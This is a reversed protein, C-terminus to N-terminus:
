FDLTYDNGYDKPLMGGVDRLYKRLATESTHRTIPMLKLIAERENMGQKLFSHFLDLAATHRFSYIGYNDGYGFHKKVKKFRNGFHDVKSKEKHATWIEVKGTNTFINAKSPLNSINLEQLFNSIPEIIKVIAKTDTKTEVTFYKERLNFDEVKLRIIERERLFAFVVFQIFHYMQKDHQLLYDKLEKVEYGTFPTNKIPKSKSTEIDLLLNKSILKDRVLKGFLGSLCRKYNDQSTKGVGRGGLKEPAILNNMFTIIHVEELDRIDKSDIKNLGCWELFVNKRVRYDDATSEKWTGLKNNFAYELAERVTYKKQEFAKEPKIGEKNFPNYGGHLLITFADVWSEAAKTREKITKYRNIKCTDMFKVMKQTKPHRFYYYVYWGKGAVITPKGDQTTKFIKVKSFNDMELNITITIPLNTPLNRFELEIKKM